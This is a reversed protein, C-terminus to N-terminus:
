NEEKKFLKCAKERARAEFEPYSRSRSIAEDFDVEFGDFDPGDVCAFKTKGGVTLRCGGCMGTGDIMIPNMSVMTKINHPKTHQEREYVFGIYEENYLISKIPLNHTEEIIISPKQSTKHESSLFQLITPHTFFIYPKKKPSEIVTSKDDRAACVVSVATASLTAALVPLSTELVTM